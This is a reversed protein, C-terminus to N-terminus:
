LNKIISDFSMSAVVISLGGIAIVSKISQEVFFLLILIIVMLFVTSWKRMKARKITQNKKCPACSIAWFFWCVITAFAIFLLFVKKM